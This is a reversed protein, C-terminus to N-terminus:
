LWKGRLLVLVAGLCFFVFFFLLDLKYCYGRECHEALFILLCLKYCYYRDCRLYVGFTVFHVGICGFVAFYVRGV